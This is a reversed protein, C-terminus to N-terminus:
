DITILEFQGGIIPTPDTDDNTIVITVKCTGNGTVQNIALTTDYITDVDGKTSAFIKESADDYCYVLSVYGLPDSGSAIFRHVAVKEGNPITVGGSSDVTSAAISKYKSDSYDIVPNPIVVGFLFPIIAILFLKRM